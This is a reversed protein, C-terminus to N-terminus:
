KKYLRHQIGMPRGLKILESFDNIKDTEVILRFTPEPDQKPLFQGFGLREIEKIFYKSIKSGEAAVLKYPISMADLDFKNFGVFSLSYGDTFDEVFQLTFSDMDMSYSEVIRQGAIVCTSSKIGSESVYTGEAVKQAKSVGDITQHGRSDYMRLTHEIEFKPFDSKTVRPCIASNYENCGVITFFSLGLLLIRKPLLINKTM